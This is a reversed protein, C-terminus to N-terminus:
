MKRARVVKSVQRHNKSQHKHNIKAEKIQMIRNLHSLRKGGVEIVKDKHCIKIKRHNNLL